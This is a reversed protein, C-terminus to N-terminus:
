IRFVEGTRCFCTAEIEMGGGVLRLLTDRVRDRLLDMTKNFIDAERLCEVAADTSVCSKIQRLAEIDAGAELACTILTEIRGDGNSSHTNTIGIGLKVLKGIHGVLKVKEFGLEAAYLLAEGIFNSCKLGEGAYDTGYNGLTLLIEREGSEYLQRIEVRVTDAIAKQSMPEVIGSTGLVSLGGHIGLRPNFTRMALEEGGPISIEIKVGDPCNDRIMRRPVSNIAWEGVPQDLGPKTVRGIGEGGTIEVGSAIRTARAYVLCGNTVDPDDGSDKMIACRAFQPAIEANLVDLTLHVGNPTELTVTKAATQTLLMGCAAKAAAAACSGTTYGRRLLRGAVLRSDM